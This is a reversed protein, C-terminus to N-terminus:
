KFLSRITRNDGRFEVEKPGKLALTKPVDLEAYMAERAAGLPIGGDALHM